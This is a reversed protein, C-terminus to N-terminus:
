SPVRSFKFYCTVFQDLWLRIDPFFANFSILSSYTRSAWAKKLFRFGLTMESM